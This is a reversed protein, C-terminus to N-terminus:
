QSYRESSQMLGKDYTKWEGIRKGKKYSGVSLLLRKQDTYYEFELWAGDKNGRKYSGQEFALEGNYIGKLEQYEGHLIGKKYHEIKVTDTRQVKDSLNAECCQAYYVWQGHRENRKLTGLGIVDHFQSWLDEPDYFVRGQFTTKWVPPETEIDSQILMEAGDMRFVVIGSEDLYPNFIRGATLKGKDFKLEYPIAFVRVKGEERVFYDRQSSRDVSGDVSVYGRDYVQTTDEGTGRHRWKGQRFGNSIRGENTWILTPKSKPMDPMPIMFASEKIIWDRGASNIVEYKLEVHGFGDDVPLYEREDSSRFAYFDGQLNQNERTGAVMLTDYRPVFSSEGDYGMQELSDELVVLLVEDNLAEAYTMDKQYLAVIMDTDVQTSQAQVNLAALLSLVVLRYKM